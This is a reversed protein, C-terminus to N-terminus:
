QLVRFLKMSSGDKHTLVWENEDTQAIDAITKSDDISSPWNDMFDKSQSDQEILNSNIQQINEKM